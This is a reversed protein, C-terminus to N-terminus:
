YLLSGPGTVRFLNGLLMFTSESVPLPNIGISEYFAVYCNEAVKYTKHTAPALAATFYGQVTPDLCHFDM